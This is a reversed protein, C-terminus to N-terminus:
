IKTYDFLSFLKCQKGLILNKKDLVAARQDNRGWCGRKNGESGDTLLLLVSVNEPSAAFITM